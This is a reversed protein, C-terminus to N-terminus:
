CSTCIEPSGFVGMVGGRESVSAYVSWVEHQSASPVPIPVAKADSRPLSGGRRGPDAGWHDLGM